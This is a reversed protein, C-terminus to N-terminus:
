TRVLLCVYRSVYRSVYRAENKTGHSQHNTIPSQNYSCKSAYTGFIRVSSCVYELITFCITNTQKNPSENTMTPKQHGTGTWTRVRCHGPSICLGMTCCIVLVDCYTVYGSFKGTSDEERDLSELGTLSKSDQSSQKRDRFGTCLFYVPAKM